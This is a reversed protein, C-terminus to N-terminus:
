IICTLYVTNYIADNEENTSTSYMCQPTAPHQLMLYICTAFNIKDYEGVGM